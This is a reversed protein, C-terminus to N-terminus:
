FQDYTHKKLFSQFTFSNKVTSQLEDATGKLMKPGPSIIRTWYLLIMSIVAPLYM